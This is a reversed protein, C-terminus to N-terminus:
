SDRKRFELTFQAYKSQLLAPKGDQDLISIVLGNINVDRCPYFKAEYPQIKQQGLFGVDFSFPYISSPVSNIGVTNVTDLCVHFAWQPNVAPELTSLSIYQTAQPAAPYTAAPYGVLTSFGGPLIVIQPTTNVAPLAPAGAPLTWGAPLVSPVPTFSMSVGYYVSNVNMTVYFMNDGNDDVLYTKNKVMESALAQSITDIDYHGAQLQVNFTVPGASTPYIYQFTSNGFVPESVNFVSNFVFGSTLAVEYNKLQMGGSLPFSYRYNSTVQSNSANVTIPFGISTM